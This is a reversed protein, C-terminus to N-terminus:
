SARGGTPEAHVILDKAASALGAKRYDGQAWMAFWPLLRAVRPRSRLSQRRTLLAALSRVEDRANDAHAGILSRAEGARSELREGASLLFGLEGALGGPRSMRRWRSVVAHGLREKVGPSTIRNVFFDSVNAGHRRYYQLTAERREVLGLLDAMQVLWNDHAKAELPVPLLIQLLSRRFAACCGMVMATPPLGANRIQEMKTAGASRLTEDVLLADTIFCAKGPNAVALAEVTALKAAYWVDDQDSLFVLDGSVMSLARDFNLAPGVREPNVHIEVPFPADRAFDRLIRLTADTSRDDCVVLEDPLRTQGAFSQLQEALFAQGNYTAMAISLKM